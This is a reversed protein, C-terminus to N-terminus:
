PDRFKKCFKLFFYFYHALESFSGSASQHVSLGSNM